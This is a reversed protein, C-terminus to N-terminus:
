LCKLLGAVFGGYSINEACENKKPRAKSPNAAQASMSDQEAASGSDKSAFGECVASRRSPPVQGPSWKLQCRNSLLARLDRRASGGGHDIKLETPGTPSTVLTVGGPGFNSPVVKL